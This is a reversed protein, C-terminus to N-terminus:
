VNSDYIEKLIEIDDTMKSIIGKLEDDYDVLKKIGIYNNPLQKMIEQAREVLQRAAVVMDRQQKVTMLYKFDSM